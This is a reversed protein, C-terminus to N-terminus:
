GSIGTNKEIKEAAYLSETSARGRTSRGRCNANCLECLWVLASQAAAVAPDNLAKVPNSLLGNGGM